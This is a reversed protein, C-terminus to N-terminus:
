WADKKLSRIQKTWKRGGVRDQSRNRRREAYEAERKLKLHHTWRREELRGERLAHAVACGDEGGHSCDRYQCSRELREIDAFAEALGESTWLGLERMGPTDILLGRNGPLVFLRRGTTTHRGRDDDLRQSQVTQVDGGILHNTLTSKGVGSSGILAITEGPALLPELPQLGGDLVASTFVVRFASPIAGLKARYRREGTPDLDAKHVVLVGEAGSAAVVALYRELRNVNFDRNMSTVVLVRDVNAAMVQPRSALGTSQRVLVTRRPLLTTVIAPPEGGTRRAIVWDGVSPRDLPDHVSPPRAVVPHSRGLLTLLAGHDAVVRSIFTDGGLDPPVHTALDPGFGLDNLDHILATSARAARRFGHRGPARSDVVVM